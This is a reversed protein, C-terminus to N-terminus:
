TCQDPQQPDVYNMLIHYSLITRVQFYGENTKGKQRREEKGKGKGDGVENETEREDKNGKEKGKEKDKIFEQIIFNETIENM